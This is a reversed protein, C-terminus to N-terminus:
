IVDLVHYSMHASLWSDFFINHAKKHMGDFNLNTAKLYIINVIFYFM